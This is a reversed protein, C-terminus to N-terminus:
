LNSYNPRRDATFNYRQRTQEIIAKDIDIWVLEETQGFRIERSGQDVWPPCVISAGYEAGSRNVSFWYAQNELARAIVFAHWSYFSADKFFAVPHIIADVRHKQVMTLALEPFRMDYCILPALRIGKIDFVLLKEGGTFYDKEMSAGFQAMHLKDYVGAASGEPDILFQSIHAKGSSNVRPAGYLLFVNHKKALASFRKFSEGTASEAFIELHEFCHRTYSVSSLEPLVVLDATRDSLADDLLQVVRDLHGNRDRASRMDAPVDLQCALVKIHSAGSVANQSLAHVDTCYLCRSYMM